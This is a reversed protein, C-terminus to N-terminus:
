VEGKTAEILVRVPEALEEAVNLGLDELEAIDDVSFLTDKVEALKMQEKPYNLAFSAVNAAVQLGGNTISHLDDHLCKLTDHDLATIDGCDWLKLYNDQRM